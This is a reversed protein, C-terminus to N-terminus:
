PTLEVGARSAVSGLREHSRHADTRELHTTLQVTTCGRRRDAALHPALDDTSGRARGLRDDLLLGAVAPVDERRAERLVVPGAPTPSTDLTPTRPM